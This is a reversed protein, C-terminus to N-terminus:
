LKRRLPQANVFEHQRIYKDSMAQTAHGLLAQYNLGQAKADTASKARIDHFRVDTIGAAQKANWFMLNIDRYPYPAGKRTCLLHTMNKVSRPLSKAADIVSKLEPTLEYRQRSETKNQIVYLGDDQIDSFKLKLIDSIRLGTLYGIDMCVRILDNAKERIAIFEADTMYRSRSKVVLGGIDKCPNRSIVGQRVARQMVNSVLARGINAMVPSSHNDLWAAIHHPEIMDLDSGKFFEKLPEHAKRYAIRSAESLGDFWKSSMLEDLAASFGDREITKGALQAWLILAKPKDKGLDIWERKVGTTVFYYKEGKMHMKPPLDFNSQRKRGM